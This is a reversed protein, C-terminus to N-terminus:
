RPPPLSERSARHQTSDGATERHFFHPALTADALSRVSAKKM